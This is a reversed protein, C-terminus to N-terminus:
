SDEMEPHRCGEIISSPAHGHYHNCTDVIGGHPMANFCVGDEPCRVEKYEFSVSDNSIAQRTPNIQIM